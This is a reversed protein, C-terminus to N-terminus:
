PRGILNVRRGGAAIWGPYHDFGNSLVQRRPLFVTIPQNLKRFIVM